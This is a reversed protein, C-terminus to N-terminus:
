FQQRMSKLDAKSPSSNTEYFYKVALAVDRIEGKVIPAIFLSDLFRGLAGFPFSYTMTATFICHEPDLGDELAYDFSSQPFPKDKEGDHLRITFGFGNRWDTVTEDMAMMKKFVRRSAGVGETQETHMETKILGPVYKHPVTIDQMISWAKDRPMDLTVKYCIARSM